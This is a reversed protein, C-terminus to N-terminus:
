WVADTDGELNRRIMGVQGDEYRQLIASKAAGLTRYLIQCPMYESHRDRSTTIRASVRYDGRGFCVIWGAILRDIVCISVRIPREALVCRRTHWNCLVSLGKCMSAPVVLQATPVGLLLEDVHRKTLVSGWFSPVRRKM